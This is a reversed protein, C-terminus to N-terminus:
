DPRVPMFPSDDSWPKEKTAGSKAGRTKRSKKAAGKKSAVRKEARKSRADGRKTARPADAASDGKKKKASSAKAGTDGSPAAALQVSAPDAGSVTDAVLPGPPPPAPPLAAGAITTAPPPTSPAIATAGTDATPSAMAPPPETIAAAQLPDRRESLAVTVAAVIGAAAVLVAAVLIWRRRPPGAIETGSRQHALARAHVDPISVRATMEVEPRMARAPAIVPASPRRLIAPPPPLPAPDPMPPAVPTLAAGAPPPGPVTGPLTGSPPTPVRAIVPPPTTPVRAIMPPPTKTPVPPVAIVDTATIDAEIPADPDIPAVMATDEDYVKGVLTRVVHQEVFYAGQARAKEWEALAASFLREMVGSLTLPSIRLRNEHAFDELTRQLELASAFRHDPDRAMARLVIAELEPPYAAIRQTPPEVVGAVIQQITGFETEAAFPLRGTTLEYLLSGISFIDSRRDVPSGGGKCQEPSMYSIKGKLGGTITSSERSAARAIGFDVVKVGGEYTVLINSPSVDRHVIGLPRGDPAAKQHAYHLGAAIGVVLTLATDLSIPVGQDAAAALVRRLDEGHVYEMTFFYSGDEVGIDYVQAINPHHLTAALRAEDLFMQVFGPTEAYQPLIRKVVVLKEFGEIGVTRALYLEAMGGIAIQRILEYKGLKSGPTLHRAGRAQYGGVM